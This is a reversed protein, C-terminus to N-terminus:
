GEGASALAQPSPDSVTSPWSPVPVEVEAARVARPAAAGL